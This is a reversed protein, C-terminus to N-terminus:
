GEFLQYLLLDQQNMISWAQRIKKHYYNRFYKVDKYRAELELKKKTEKYM